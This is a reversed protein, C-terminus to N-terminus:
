NFTKMRGKNQKYCPILFYLINSIKAFACKQMHWNKSLKSSEGKKRNPVFYHVLDKLELTRSAPCSNYQEEQRLTNTALSKNITKHPIKIHEKLESVFATTTKELPQSTPFLMDLPQHM